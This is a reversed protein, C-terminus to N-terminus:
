ASKSPLCGLRFPAEHRAPATAGGWFSPAVNCGM